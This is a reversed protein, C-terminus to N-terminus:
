RPKDPSVKSMEKFDLKVMWEPKDPSVKSMEKFDLKVMWEEGRKRRGGVTYGGRGRGVLAWKRTTEWVGQL